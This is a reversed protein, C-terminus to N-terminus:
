QNKKEEEKCTECPIFMSGIIFYLAALLICAGTIVLPLLTITWSMAAGLFVKACLLTIQAINLVLLLVAIIAGSNIKFKRKEVM